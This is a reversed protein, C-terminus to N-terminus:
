AGECPSEEMMELPGKQMRELVQEWTWGACHTRLIQAQKQEWATLGVGDPSGSQIDEWLRQTRRARRTQDLFRHRERGGSSAEADPQQPPPVDVAPVVLAERKERRRQIDEWVHEKKWKSKSPMSLSPDDPEAVTLQKQNLGPNDRGRRWNPARGECEVLRQYWALVNESGERVRGPPDGVAHRLCAKNTKCLMCNRCGAGKKLMRFCYLIPCPRELRGSKPITLALALAGRLGYATLFADLHEGSEREITAVEMWTWVIRHTEQDRGEPDDVHPLLREAIFIRQQNTKHLRRQSKSQQDKRRTPTLKRICKTSVKPEPAAEFAAKRVLEVPKGAVPVPKVRPQKKGKVGRQKAWSGDVLLTGAEGVRWIESDDDIMEQPVLLRGAVPSEVVLSAGEFDVIRAGEIAVPRARM